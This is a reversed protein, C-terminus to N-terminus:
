LGPLASCRRAREFEVAAHRVAEVFPKLMENGAAAAPPWIATPECLVIAVQPFANKLRGLIDAYNERYNEISTGATSATSVM